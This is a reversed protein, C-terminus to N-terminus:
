RANTVAPIAAPAATIALGVTVDERGSLQLLIQREAPLEFEVIKHILACGPGFHRRSEVLSDGDILDIWHRSTLSVRYIGAAGTRFSFVGGRANAGRSARGPEKRFKLKHQDDLSIAYRRGLELPVPSASAPAGISSAPSRMVGIENAYESASAGCGEAAPTHAGLEHAYLILLSVAVIIIAKLM